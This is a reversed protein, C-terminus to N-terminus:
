GLAPAIPGALERARADSIGFADRLQQLLRAESGTIKGDAAAAALCAAFATERAPETPLDKALRLLAGDVGLEMCRDVAQRVVAGVDPVQDFFPESALRALLTEEEEAFEGDAIVTITIAQLITSAVRHGGAKSKTATRKAAPKKKKKPKSPAKKKPTRKKIARKKKKAGM